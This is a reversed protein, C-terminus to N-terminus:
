GFLSGENKEGDDASEKKAGRTKKPASKAGIIGQKGEQEGEQDRSGETSEGGRASDLITVRREAEALYKGLQARLGIGEEYLRLAEELAINEGDLLSSIEELRDLGTEFFHKKDSKTM